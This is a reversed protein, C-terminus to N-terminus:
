HARRIRISGDVTSLRMSAGGGNITGRMTRPGWKGKVTLPFDSELDGDVSTAAVDVAVDRDLHLTISGDVTSIRTDHAVQGEIDLLVDGDVSSLHAPMVGRYTVDGDVTTIEAPTDLGEIRLDGDVTTADLRAGRPITVTYTMEVELPERRRDIHTGGRCSTRAEDPRNLYVTCVRIGDSTEEMIASVLDGDGRIVRKRVSIEATTGTGQTVTVDGEVNSIGLEDGPRLVKTFRYDDQARLSTGATAPDPSTLHRSLGFGTVAVAALLLRVM